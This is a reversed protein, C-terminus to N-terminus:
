DMKGVLYTIDDTINKLCQEIYYVAQEPSKMKFLIDNNKVNLNFGDSYMLFCIPNEFKIREARYKQPRGSLYGSYSIPRTVKEGDSYIILNINGIGCYFLENLRYDIKFVAMVVGRKGVLSDNAEDLMREVSQDHAQEIASIAAQSSEKAPEGSGLGDAIACVFYNETELVIYSDGCILNDGKPKQYASVQVKNFDHSEIM